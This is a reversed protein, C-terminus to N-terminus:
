VFDWVYIVKKLALKHMLIKEITPFRVIVGYDEQFGIVMGTEGHLDSQEPSDVIVPDGIDFNFM